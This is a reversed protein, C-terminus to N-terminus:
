IISFTALSVCLRRCISGNYSLSRPLLCGYGGVYRDTIHYLVHCSVCMVVWVGIREINSRCRSILLSSRNLVFSYSVLPSKLKGMAFEGNIHLLM